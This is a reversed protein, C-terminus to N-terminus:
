PTIWRSIWRWAMRVYAFPWLMTLTVYYVTSYWTWSSSGKIHKEWHDYVVRVPVIAMHIVGIVSYGASIYTWYNM